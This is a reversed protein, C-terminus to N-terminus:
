DSCATERWKRFQMRHGDPREGDFREGREEQWVGRFNYIKSLCAVSCLDYKRRDMLDEYRPNDAM